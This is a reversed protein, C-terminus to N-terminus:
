SAGGEKKLGFFVPGSREHGTIAKALKSLSSYTKGNYEFGNERVHVHHDKGQWRRTLITGAKPKFKDKVALAGGAEKDLRYIINYHRVSLGGHQQKQIAHCIKRRLTDTNNKLKLLADAGCIKLYVARLNEGHLKQVLPIVREAPMQIIKYKPATVLDTAQKQM